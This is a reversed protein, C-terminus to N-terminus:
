GEMDMGMDMDPAVVELGAGEGESAVTELFSPRITMMVLLTGGVVEGMTVESVEVEKELFDPTLPKELELPPCEYRRARRTALALPAATILILLRRALLRRALLCVQSTATEKRMGRFCVQMVGQIGKTGRGLLDMTPPPFPMLTM